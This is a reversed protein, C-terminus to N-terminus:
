EVKSSRRAMRQHMVFLGVALAPWGIWLWLERWRALPAAADLEGRIVVPEQENDVRVELEWRGPEPLELQASQLLKNTAAERTASCMLPAQNPKTMCVTVRMEPAPEGTSANQILVSIDVPGARFPLPAAFVTVLYDGHQKSVCVAGGDGYVPVCWTGLLFWGLILSILVRRM